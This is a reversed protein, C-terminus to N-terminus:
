FSCFCQSFATIGQNMLWGTWLALRMPIHCASIVQFRIMPFGGPRPHPLRYYGASPMLILIPKAGVRNQM